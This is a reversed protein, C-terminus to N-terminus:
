RGLKGAPPVAGGKRLREVARLLGVQTMTGDYTGTEGARLLAKTHRVLAPSATLFPEAVRLFEAELLEPEVVADVLGLARAEEAGTPRPAALFRLAAGMGTLRPLYWSAVSPAMGNVLHGDFFRARSTSIRIDCQLAFGLGGGVCVGDVLAVTPMELARFMSSEHGGSSPLSRGSDRAAVASLEDRDRGSCFNGEAGSVGVVRITSDDNLRSCCHQLEQLMTDDFANLQRPRHLVIRACGRDDVECHISTYTL